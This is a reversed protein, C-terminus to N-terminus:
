KLVTILQRYNSQKVVNIVTFNKRSYNICDQPIIIVQCDSSDELSQLEQSTDTTKTQKYNRIETISQTILSM